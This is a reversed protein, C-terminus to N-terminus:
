SLHEHENRRITFIGFTRTKPTYLPFDDRGTSTVHAQVYALLEEEPVNKTFARTYAVADELSRHPQGFELAGPELAYAWGREELWTRTSDVDCCKRVRYEAPGTTGYASGHVVLVLTKRAKALYAEGVTRVDGHFLAMVGDWSGEATPGDACVASLNAAGMAEARARLDAIVEPSSDVCTISQFRGALELDTLGMGCGMDCLTRCGELHPALLKALARSYGTYESADAFWGLTQENWTFLM